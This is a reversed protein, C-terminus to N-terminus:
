IDLEKMCETQEKTGKEAQYEPITYPRLQSPNEIDLYGFKDWDAWVSFCPGPSNDIIDYMVILKTGDLGVTRLIRNETEEYIKNIEGTKIDYTYIKNNSMTLSSGSSTSVYILNKDTPSFPSNFSEFIEGSQTMVDERISEWRNDKGDLGEEIKTTEETQPKIQPTPTQAPQTDQNNVTPVESKQASQWYYMGGGVVIATIAITLIYPWVSRSNQETM